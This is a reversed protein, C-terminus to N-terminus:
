EMIGIKKLGEVNFGAPPNTNVSGRNLAQGTNQILFNISYILFGVVMLGLLVAITIFVTEQKNILKM